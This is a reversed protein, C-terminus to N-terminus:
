FGSPIVPPHLLCGSAENWFFREVKDLLPTTSSQKLCVLPVGQASSPAAGNVACTQVYRTHYTDNENVVYSMSWRKGPMLPFPQGSVGELREIESKDSKFMGRSSKASLPLLGGLASVFEVKASVLPSEVKGKVQFMRGQRQCEYDANSAPITPQTFTIKYRDVAKAAGGSVDFFPDSEVAARIKEASALDFKREPEVPLALLRLADQLDQPSARKSFASAKFSAVASGAAAAKQLWDSALQANRAVGLGTDYRDALAMMAAADGAEAAKLQEALLAQDRRAADARSRAEAAAREEARRQGEANLRPAPLVVEISKVVEDGLRFEQEFVRERSADVKKVVKLKVSGPAVKVDVPCDGKFSGNVFVEAGTADDDCAVRLLSGVALADAGVTLLALM